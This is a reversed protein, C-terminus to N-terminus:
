TLITRGLRSHIRGARLPSPLPSDHLLSSARSKPLFRWCARRRRRNASSTTHAFPAGQYQISIAHRVLWSNRHPVLRWAAITRRDSHDMRIRPSRGIGIWLALRFVPDDRCDLIRRRCQPPDSTTWDRKCELRGSRAAGRCSCSPLAGRDGLPGGDPTRRPHRAVWARRIRRPRRRLFRGNRCLLAGTETVHGILHRVQRKQLEQIGNAPELDESAQERFIKVELDRALESGAIKISAVLGPRPRIFLKGDLPNVREQSFRAISGKRCM